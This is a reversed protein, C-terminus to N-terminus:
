RSKLLPPAVPLIVRVASVTPQEQALDLQLIPESLHGYLIANGQDLVYSLDLGRMAQNSLGTYDRGGVSSEFMMIEAIRALDSHMEVDWEQLQSNNEYSERRTLHWRFNKQRLSDISEITQGARFRTPLLYVWNGYVLMANMLDVSLPNTIAGTLLDNGRRQSLGRTEGLNPSFAWTTMWGKSGAPALPFALPLSALRDAAFRDDRGDADSRSMRIEYQPMGRDEGMIAIGGFTPGPYGYPRSLTVSRTASPANGRWQTSIEAALDTRTAATSLVHSFSTLRAVAPQSIASIDVVEIRNTRLGFPLAGSSKSSSSTPSVAAVDDNEIGGPWIRQTRVETLAIILVSIAVVTIPFSIWGILPRGLVRNVVWYDIPGVLAALLLLIISIISFPITRISDFRDLATRMQGALDDYPVSAITRSERRKETDSDLVGPHLRTVLSLREPWGAIDGAHLGFATVGVRGLGVLREVVLQTPQRALTRGALLIRGGATALSIGDLTPLRTQSSTFTELAAPDIRVLSLESDVGAMEALWPSQSLMAKAEKGLPLFLRGGGHIWRQISTIQSISLDALISQGAANIILLDVGEWGATQDPLDAGSTIKSVAVSSARGLLENRGIDDIGLADGVVVVWPKSPEIALGSFRGRYIPLGAPEDDAAEGYILLPAAVVGPAAYAWTSATLQDHENANTPQTYRVRVGNGDLTEVAAIPLFGAASDGAEAAPLRIATWNGPRYIGSIGIQVESPPTLPALSKEDILPTQGAAPQMFGALILAGAFVRRLLSAVLLVASNM